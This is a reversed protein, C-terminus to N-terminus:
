KGGPIASVETALANIAQAIHRVGDLAGGIKVEDELVDAIRAHADALKEVAATLREDQERTM